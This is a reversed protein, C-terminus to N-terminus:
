LFVQRGRQPEHFEKGDLILYTKDHHSVEFRSQVNKGQVGANRPMEPNCATYSFLTTHNSPQFTCSASIFPLRDRKLHVTCGNSEVGCKQQSHLGREEMLGGMEDAMQKFCEAFTAFFPQAQEKLIREKQERREIEEAAEHDKEGWTHALKKMWEDAMSFFVESETNGFEFIIRM